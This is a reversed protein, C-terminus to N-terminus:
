LPLRQLALRNCYPHPYVSVRCLFAWRDIESTTVHGSMGTGIFEANNASPLQKSSVYYDNV